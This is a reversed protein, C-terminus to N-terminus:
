ILRRLRYIIELIQKLLLLRTLGQGNLSNWLMYEFLNKFKFRRDRAGQYYFEIASTRSDPFYIDLYPFNYPFDNPLNPRNRRSRAPVGINEFEDFACVHSLGYKNLLMLMLEIDTANTDLYNKHLIFNLINM